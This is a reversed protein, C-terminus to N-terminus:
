TTTVSNIGQYQNRLVEVWVTLLSFVCLDVDYGKLEM